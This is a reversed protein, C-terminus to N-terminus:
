KPAPCSDPFLLYYGFITCLVNFLSHNLYRLHWRMTIVVCSIM